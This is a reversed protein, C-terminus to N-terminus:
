REGLGKPRTKPIVSSRFKNAAELLKSDPVNKFGAWENRLERLIKTPDDGARRLRKSVLHVFMQDQIEKTFKTDGSLGLEEATQKLTKGVIQYRGLPTSLRGEPNNAKVYQGYEGAPDTFTYLEDLSMTTVDVGQFATDKKNAYNFLASYDGSAEKDDILGQLSDYGEFVKEETKLRDKYIDLFDFPSEEEGGKLSQPSIGVDIDRAYASGLGKYMSRPDPINAKRRLTPKDRAM